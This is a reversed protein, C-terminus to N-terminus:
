NGLFSERDGIFNDAQERIAPVSEYLLRANEKSFELVQGNLMVNEWGVTCAVLMDLQDEELQEATVKPMKGRKTAKDLKKNTVRKQVRKFEDSDQSLLTITVFRKTKKGKGDDVEDYFLEGTGPHIVKMPKGKPAAKAANFQALDM